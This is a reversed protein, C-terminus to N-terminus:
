SAGSRSRRRRTVLAAALALAAALPTSSRSGAGGVACSGGPGAGAVIVDAGNGVALDLSSGGDPLVVTVAEAYNPDGGDPSAPAVRSWALRTGSAIWRPGIRGTTPPGVPVAPGANADLSAVYLDGENVTVPGADNPSQFRLFAVQSGDPSVAYDHARSASGSLKSINRLVTCTGNQAGFVDLDTPSGPAISSAAVVEGSHLLVAHHPTTGHCTFFVAPTAGAADAATVLSWTGDGNPRPWALTQADKWDVRINSSEDPGGDPPGGSAYVPAIARYASGDLAITSVQFSAGLPELFAVRSGDPSIRPQGLAGVPGQLSRLVQPTTACTLQDTGARLSVAYAGADDPRLFDVGSFVWRSPQGAPAEWVDLGGSATLVVRQKAATAESSDFTATCAAAHSGSGDHGAVHVDLIGGSATIQTEAYLVPAALAHLTPRPGGTGGPLTAQLVYDGVVDPVFTATTESTTLSATTVASGQPVSVVSWTVASTATAVAPAGAYVSPATVGVAAPAVDEPAGVPSDTPADFLAADSSADMSPAVAPSDDHGCAVLALAALPALKRM